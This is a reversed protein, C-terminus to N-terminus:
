GAASAETVNAETGDPITIVGGSAVLVPGLKLWSDPPPARSHPKSSRTPAYARVSPPRKRYGMVETHGHIHTDGLDATPIKIKFINQVGCAFSKTCSTASPTNPAVFPPIRFTKMTFTSIKGM